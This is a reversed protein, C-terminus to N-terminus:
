HSKSLASHLRNRVKAADMQSHFMGIFEQSNVERGTEITAGFVSRLGRGNDTTFVAIPSHPSAANIRGMLASLQTIAM